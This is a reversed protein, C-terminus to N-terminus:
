VEFSFAIVDDVYAGRCRSHTFHKYNSTNTRLDLMKSRDDFDVIREITRINARTERTLAKEIGRPFARRCM